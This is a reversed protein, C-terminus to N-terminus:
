FNVGLVEDNETTIALRNNGIVAIGRPGAITGPLAGLTTANAGAKGVVTTVLGDPTIKRIANNYTDAVYLNGAADIAIGRPGWFRATSSGDASGRERAKGAITTVVGNPTVKRITNNREDAVYLNGTAKDIAMGQPMCFRAAADDTSGCNFDDYAGAITKVEGSSFSLKRITGAEEAFYLNDNGDFVLGKPFCMSPKTIDNEMGCQKRVGAVISLKGGADKQIVNNATDSIYPSGASDLAIASPFMLEASFSKGDRDAALQKDFATDVRGNPQIVRIRHNGQDVVWLESQIKVLGSPLYFHADPGVGDQYGRTGGAIRYLTNPTDIVQASATDLGLCSLLLVLCTKLLRCLRQSLSSSM